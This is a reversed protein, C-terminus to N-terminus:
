AHQRATDLMTKLLSNKRTADEFKAMVDKDSLELAPGDGRKKVIENCTKLM